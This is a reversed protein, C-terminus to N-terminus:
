PVIAKTIRDTDQKAPWRHLLAVVFAKVAALLDTNKVLAGARCANTCLDVALGPVPTTALYFETSFSGSDFFCAM